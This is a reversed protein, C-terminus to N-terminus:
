VLCFSLLSFFFLIKRSRLGICGDTTKNSTLLRKDTKVCTKNFALMLKKISFSNYAITLSSNTSYM